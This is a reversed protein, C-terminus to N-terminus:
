DTGKVNKDELDLDILNEIKTKVWPDIIFKPVPFRSRLDEIYKHPDAATFKFGDRRYTEKGNADLHILTAMWHHKGSKTIM